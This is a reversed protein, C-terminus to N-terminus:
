GSHCEMRALCKKRTQAGNMHPHLKEFLCSRQATRAWAMHRLSRVRRPAEPRTLHFCPQSGPSRSQVRFCYIYLRATRMANELTNMESCRQRGGGGDARERLANKIATLLVSRVWVIYMISNASKLIFRMCQHTFLSYIYIDIRVYSLM